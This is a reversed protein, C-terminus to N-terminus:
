ADAVNMVLEPSASSPRIGNLIPRFLCMLDWNLDIWDM